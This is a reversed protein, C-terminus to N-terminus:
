HKKNKRTRSKKGKKHSKKHKTVKMKSKTAMVTNSTTSQGMEGKRKSADKLADKFKYNPNKQKGEKFIKSVFENWASRM